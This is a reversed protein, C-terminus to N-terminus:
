KNGYKWLLNIEQLNHIASRKSINFMYQSASSFKRLKTYAYNDKFIFCGNVLLTTSPAIPFKHCSHFHGITIVDYHSQEVLLAIEKAAKEISNLTAGRIYNGHSLLYNHGKISYTYSYDEPLIIEVRKNNAFREKLLLGLLYEFNNTAEEAVPASTTRGHNGYENIYVVRPYLELLHKILDSVYMLTHEIQKGIGCTIEAKQGEYIRDNTVLDGLGFIYFTEINYVPKYLESFRHLGKYLARLEQQQLEENYTIEGTIPARNIMGTHMDSLLLVQDETQKGTDWKGKYKIKDYIDNYKTWVKRSASLYESVEEVIETYKFRKKGKRREQLDKRYKIKGKRRLNTEWSGVTRPSVGFLEALEHQNKGAKYLEIFVKENYEM